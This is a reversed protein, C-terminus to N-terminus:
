SIGNGKKYSTMKVSLVLRWATRWKFFNVRFMLDLNAKICVDRFVYKRELSIAALFLKLPISM